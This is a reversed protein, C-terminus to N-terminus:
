LYYYVNCTFTMTPIQVLMGLYMFSIIRYPFINPVKFTLIKEQGFGLPIKNKLLITVVYYLLKNKGLNLWTFNKGDKRWAFFTLLDFVSNVFISLEAIVVFLISKQSYIDPKSCNRSKWVLRWRKRRYDIITLEFSSVHFVWFMYMTCVYM